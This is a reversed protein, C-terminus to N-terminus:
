LYSEYKLTVLTFIDWFKESHLSCKINFPRQKVVISVWDTDFCIIFDKAINKFFALWGKCDTPPSPRLSIVKSVGHGHVVTCEHVVVLLGKAVYSWMTCFGGYQLALETNNGCQSMLVFLVWGILSSKVWAMVTYWQANMFLSWYAKQLMRDCPVFDAM